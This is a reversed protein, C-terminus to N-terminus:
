PAERHVREHSVILLATAMATTRAIEDALKSARQKSASFLGVAAGSM